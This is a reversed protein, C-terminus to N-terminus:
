TQLRCRGKGTPSDVKPISTQDLFEWLALPTVATQAVLNKKAVTGHTAVHFLNDRKWIAM